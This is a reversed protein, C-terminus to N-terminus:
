RVGWRPRLGELQEVLADPMVRDCGLTRLHLTVQAVQEVTEMRDYAQQMTDGWTVAGHYELLAARYGGHCFPVVSEAVGETGPLAFPAVPVTGLQVVAEQLVPRDLPVGAAAFATAAPPHAHVVARVLPDERYIRLHLKVESSPRRDGELVTGDLALKVLMAETLEGKSVATPTVWVADEGVRVSLNGDNSAVLGRAYLKHGARVIEARAEADTPWRSM